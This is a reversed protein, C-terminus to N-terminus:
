EAHRTELVKNDQLLHFAYPLLAAPTVAMQMANM